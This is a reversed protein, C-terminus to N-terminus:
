LSDIKWINTFRNLLFMAQASLGIDTKYSMFYKEGSIPSDSSYHRVLEISNKITGNSKGIRLDEAMQRQKEPVFYKSALDTDGKELAQIFLDLTERPTAGGYNDNKYANELVAVYEDYQEVSKIDKLDMLNLLPDQNKYQYYFFISIGLLIVILGTIIWLRKGLKVKFLNM